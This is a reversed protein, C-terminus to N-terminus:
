AFVHRMAPSEGFANGFYPRDSLPLDVADRDLRLLLTTSGLTVAVDDRVTVDRLRTAGLWTGNRSGDDVLRAGDGSLSLRLHSRSVADDALRFDASEGTGIVFTPRDVRAARGRDPGATVELSVARVRLVDRGVERTETDWSSTM